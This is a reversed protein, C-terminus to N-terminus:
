GKVWGFTVAQQDIRGALASAAVQEQLVLYATRQGATDYTATDFTYRRGATLTTKAVASTANTPTAATATTGVKITVGDPLAGAVEVYFDSYSGDTADVSVAVWKEYSNSGPAVQYTDPAVAASDISMLAVGTVPGSETAANTGTFVRLSLTM